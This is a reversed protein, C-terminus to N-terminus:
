RTEPTYLGTAPVRVRMDSPAVRRPRSQLGLGLQIIADAVILNHAWGANAMAFMEGQYSESEFEAKRSSKSTSM